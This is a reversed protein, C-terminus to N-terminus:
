EAVVKEISKKAKYFSAEKIDVQYTEDYILAAYDDHHDKEVHYSIKYRLALKLLRLTDRKTM